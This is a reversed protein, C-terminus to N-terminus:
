SRKAASKRSVVLTSPKVITYGSVYSGGKADTSWTWLVEEGPQLVVSLVRNPPLPAGAPLAPAPAWVVRPRGVKRKTSKTGKSLSEFERMTKLDIAGLEHLGRAAELLERRLRRNAM